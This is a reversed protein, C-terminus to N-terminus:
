ECGVYPIVVPPGYLEIESIEFHETEGRAGDEFLLLAVHQATTPQELDYVLANRRGEVSQGVVSWADSRAPFPVGPARENSVLLSWCLVYSTFNEGEPYRVIMRQITEPQPLAFWVYTYTDCIEADPPDRADSFSFTQTTSTDGDTLSEVRPVLGRPTLGAIVNVGNPSYTVPFIQPASVCGSDDRAVVSIETAGTENLPIEACFSGSAAPLREVKTGSAVVVETANSGVTGRVAVHDHPTTKPIAEVTLTTQLVRM